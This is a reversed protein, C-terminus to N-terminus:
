ARRPEQSFPADSGREVLEWALERNPVPEGRILRLLASAAARGAEHKRHSLSTVRIPSLDSMYSNDFSVVSIDEPVRLKAYRIEKILWYAIEDDQCVIASCSGRVKRLFSTLFGTDSRAELAEHEPSAYWCALEDILPLGHDRLASAYGAYRELGRIDDMRFMAAIRSHGMEALRKTLFYGGHYNDDKLCPAKPFDAYGGNLFLIAAGRASLERYLDLNPNPLATRTGEVVIGRVPSSVIDRLIEREKSVKSFTSYVTTSYGKELLPPELDGLLAPTTYEEAHNVIIAIERAMAGLGTSFTGSGKKTEVLGEQALLRLAARVTQRSVQYQGCLDHESPLRYPSGANQLIQERLIGALHIYKATM